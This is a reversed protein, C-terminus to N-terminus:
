KVKKKTIKLDHEPLHPSKSIRKVEDLLQTAYKINGLKKNSFRGDNHSVTYIIYDSILAPIIAPAKQWPLMEIEAVALYNHGTPRKFFDIEWGKYLYRIKTVKNHGTPWLKTFDEESIPTEIEICQGGVDKKVTMRYSTIGENMCSRVRVSLGKDMALYKQEIHLTQEANVAIDEEVAESELMVFKRENEIPM